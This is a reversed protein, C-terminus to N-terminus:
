SKGGRHTKCLRYCSEGHKKAEAGKHCIHWSNKEQSRKSTYVYM